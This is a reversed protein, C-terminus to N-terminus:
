AHLYTGPQPFTEFLLNYPLPDLDTIKISYAVLSGAASGRGPGVPIGRDKAWRIFDSVILFYAPFKMDRICDLEIELRDFYGQQQELTMDPYKALITVMREKLGETALDRLMDDHNQGAPPDFHPFYYTKGDVPLDLNCREAIVLTNSVAEPAYSFARAM